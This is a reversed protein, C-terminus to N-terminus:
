RKDVKNRVVDEIRIVAAEIRAVSEKMTQEIRQHETTDVHQAAELLAVRKDMTLGWAVISCFVTVTTVIHGISVTKDLHWPQKVRREGQNLSM